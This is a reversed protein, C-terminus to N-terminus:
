CPEAAEALAKEPKRQLLVGEVEQALLTLAPVAVVVVLPHVQAAGEVPQRNAPEAAEPGAPLLRLARQPLPSGAQATWEM